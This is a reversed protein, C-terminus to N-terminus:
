LEEGTKLSRQARPPCPSALPLSSARMQEPAMCCEPPFSLPDLACTLDLGEACYYGRGFRTRTNLGSFAGSFSHHENRGSQESMLPPEALCPPPLEVM